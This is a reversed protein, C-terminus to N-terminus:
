FAKRPARHRAALGRWLEELYPMLGLLTAGSLVAVVYRQPLPEPKWALAMRPVEDGAGFLALFQPWNRAIILLLAMLPIMELFSHVHQEFPTVRRTSVAYSVDWFATAEHLLFMAIMFAIVLANVDLFIAALLPLGLEAFMLLHLLSEKPGSTTEIDTARHCMWDVVGALFWVPVIFYMLILATPDQAM